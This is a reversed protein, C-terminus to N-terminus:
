CVFLCACLCLGVTRNQETRNLNNCEEEGWRSARRLVFSNWLEHQLGCLVDAICWKKISLLLVNLVTSPVCRCSRENNHKNCSIHWLAVIFGSTVIFALWRVIETWVGCCLVLGCEVTCYWDVSWRVTGTWVGGCLVLGCEV